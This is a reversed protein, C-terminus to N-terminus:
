LAFSALRAAPRRSQALHSLLEGRSRVKYARHIAKVHDHVTHVSIGLESAIEKESDGRQLLELVERARPTLHIDRGLVYAFDRRLEEHALEVIARERETLVPEGWARYVSLSSLTLRSVPAVAMSIVFEDCDNRRFRENRIVSRRWAADDVLDRRTRTFSTGYLPIMADLTADSAHDLWFVDDYFRPAEDRSVGHSVADVLQVIQSCSTKELDDLREVAEFALSARASCLESLGQALHARWASADRGLERVESMLRFLARVDNTSLVADAM